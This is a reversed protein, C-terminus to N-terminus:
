LDPDTRARCMFTKRQTKTGFLCSTKPKKKNNLLIFNTKVDLHNKKLLDNSWRPHTINNLIYMIYSRLESSEYVSVHRDSHNKVIYKM